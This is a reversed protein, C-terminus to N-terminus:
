FEEGDAERSSGLKAHIPIDGSRGRKTSHGEKESCAAEIENAIFYEQLRESYSTWNHASNGLKEMLRWEETKTWKDEDGTYYKSGIRAM